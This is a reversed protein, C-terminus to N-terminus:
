FFFYFFLFFYYFPFYFFFIVMKKQLLIDGGDITKPHVDIISVGTEKEDNLITHYIPAAGRYKPLLSPHMNIAGYNFCSLLLPSLFHGFSVVVALDFIKENTYSDFM